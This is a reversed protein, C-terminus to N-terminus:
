NEYGDALRKQVRKSRRTFSQFNEEDGLDKYILSLLNLAEIFNPELYIAKKLMQISNKFESKNYFISALLYFINASPGKKHIIEEYIRVAKDYEKNETFIKAQALGMNKDVPSFFTESNEVTESQDQPHQVKISQGQTIFSAPVEPVAKKKIYSFTKPYPAPSFPSDTFIGSESHGIFLLGDDHLLNSLIEIVRQHFSGDLYILLNRCFIINYTKSSISPPLNLLNGKRFNICNKVIKKVSYSSKEFRDFYRPQFRKSHGRFSNNKYIGEKATALSRDSIDIADIIYQTENFGAEILSIAMSYPEEGTSCPISLLRVPLNPNMRLCTLSFNSLTSFPAEDRYFWTENIAVEDIFANLELTSSKILSIYAYFSSESISKMRRTLAKKISNKGLSSINLGIEKLLVSELITIALPDPSM